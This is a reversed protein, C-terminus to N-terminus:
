CPTVAILELIHKWVTSKNMSGSAPSEYWGSAHALTCSVDESVSRTPTVNAAYSM